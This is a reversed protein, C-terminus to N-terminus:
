RQIQEVAWFILPFMAWILSLISSAKPNIKSVILNIISLILTIFGMTLNSVTKHPTFFDL